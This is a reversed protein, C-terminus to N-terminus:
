TNGDEWESWSVAVGVSVFFAASVEEMKGGGGCTLVSDATGGSM